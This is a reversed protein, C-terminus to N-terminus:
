VVSLEQEIEQRILERRIPDLRKHTEEWIRTDIRDLIERTRDTKEEIFIM